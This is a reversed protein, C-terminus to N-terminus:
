ALRASEARGPASGLPLRVCFSAGGNARNRVEITGDHDTVIRHCIMLGLGTGQDPGKTTFFPDFIRELQEEPIGPGGDSIEICVGEGRGPYTHMQVSAGSPTAQIANLLLNLFVQHVHDRVALIKATEPDRRLQLSVNAKQAERQLLMVVEQALEGPDFTERPASSGSTRGLGRMTDVLRRIRDVERAALAHYDGWFEPDDEQRKGPAMSLFTHISTLPNNIEHALGSALTGLRGLRDARMVQERSRRLDDVLRANAIAIVAQQALGALLTRDDASFKRGGRRNDICIAGVAGRKGVLPIVLIEEAAVETVWRRVPAELSLAEGVSLVLPEGERLRALFEPAASHAIKLERLRESVPSEAPALRGWSLTQGKADFFLIGAADYALEGIVTELLLDLLRELELEQHISKAIRNLLTLERLRQARERDLAYVEIGRRLTVRMEDPTWPKPIYRYISSSNVASRLTDADGYATVLIRVTEPGLERVRSLFEVGTMAPMRQDSLVLAVPRRNLIDLGEEGSTATLIELEGAFSLEFIRLSEPEDDVYLVPFERYDLLREPSPQM